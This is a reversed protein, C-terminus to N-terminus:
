QAVRYVLSGSNVVLSLYYTAAADTETTIIENVNAVFSGWPQGAITIPLQTTGGDTSRLLTANGSWTGSVTLWIPRGLNPTFPGAVTSAAATGSVVVSTAASGGIGRILNTVSTNVNGVAVTNADTKTGVATVATTNADTKTGVTTVATTVADIKAGNADQKASTALAQATLQTNTLGITVPLPADVTVDSASGDAGFAIKTRPYLVGSVDDAALVTGAPVPSTVNDAM